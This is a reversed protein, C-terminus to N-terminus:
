KTLRGEFYFTRANVAINRTTHHLQLQVTAGPKVAPRPNFSANGNEDLGWGDEYRGAERGPSSQFVHAEKDREGMWAYRGAERGPSSQFRREM